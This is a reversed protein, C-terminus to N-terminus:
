RGVYTKTKGTTEKRRARGGIDNTSYGRDIEDEKVQIMRIIRPSSYMNHLEENYLERWGGSV